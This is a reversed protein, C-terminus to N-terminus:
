VQIESIIGCINEHKIKNHICCVLTILVGLVEATKQTLYYNEYKM